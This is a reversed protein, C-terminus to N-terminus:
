VKWLKAPGRKLAAHAKATESSRMTRLITASVNTAALFNEPVERGDLLGMKMRKLHARARAQKEALAQCAPHAHTCPAPGDYAGDAWTDLKLLRTETEIWRLLAHLARPM